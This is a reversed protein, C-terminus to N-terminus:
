SRHEQYVGGNEEYIRRTCSCGRRHLAICTCTCVYRPSLFYFYSNTDYAIRHFLQCGVQKEQATFQNWTAAAEKAVRASMTFRTEGPAPLAGAHYKKFFFSYANGPRAPPKDEKKIM